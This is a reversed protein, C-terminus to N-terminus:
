YSTAHILALHTFTKTPLINSKLCTQISESDRNASHAGLIREKRLKERCLFEVFHSMSVVYHKATLLTKFTIFVEWNVKKFYKPNYCPVFATM